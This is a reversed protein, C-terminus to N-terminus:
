GAKKLSKVAYEVAEAITPSFDEDADIEAGDFAIVEGDTLVACAVGERSMDEGDLSYEAGYSVRYATGLPTEVNDIESDAIEVDQCGQSELMKQLAADVYDEPQIDEIDGYGYDSGLDELSFPVLFARISSDYSSDPTVLLSIIGNEDDEVSEWGRPISFSYDGLTAKKVKFPPKKVTIKCTYKKGAVKATITAKGASVAKVKGKKSVTAVDPDSSKWTIDKKTGSVKLQFTEGSQLTKKAKSLKVTAANATVPTDFPAAPMALALAAALALSASLKKLVNM